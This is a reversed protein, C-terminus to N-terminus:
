ADQFPVVDDSDPSQVGLDLASLSESSFPDLHRLEPDTM